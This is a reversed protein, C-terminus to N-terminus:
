PQEVEQDIETILVQVEIEQRLEKAAQLERAREQAELAEQLLAESDIDDWLTARAQEAKIRDSQTLGTEALQEKQHRKEDASPEAYGGDRVWDPLDRYPVDALEGLAYQEAFSLGLAKTNNIRWNQGLHPKPAAKPEAKFADAFLRAREDPSVSKGSSAADKEPSGGGFAQLFLDSNSM